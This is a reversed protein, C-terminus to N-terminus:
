FNGIVHYVLFVVLFPFYLYREMEGSFFLWVDAICTTIAFKDQM